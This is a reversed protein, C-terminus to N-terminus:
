EIVTVPLEVTKLLTDFSATITLTYNGPPVDEGVVLTLETSSETTPTPDFIPEQMYAKLNMNISFMMDFQRLIFFSLFGISVKWVINSISRKKKTTVNNFQLWNYSIM